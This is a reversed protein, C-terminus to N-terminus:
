GNVPLPTVCMSQFEADCQLARRTWLAQQREGLFLVAAKFANLHQQIEQDTLTQSEPEDTINQFYANVQQATHVSTSLAIAATAAM